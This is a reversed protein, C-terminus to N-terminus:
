KNCKNKIKIQKPIPPSGDAAPTLPPPPLLPPPPPDAPFPLQPLAEDAEFFNSAPMNSCGTMVGPPM